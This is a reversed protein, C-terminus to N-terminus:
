KTLEEKAVKDVKGRVIWYTFASISMMFINIYTRRAEKSPNTAWEKNEGFFYSLGTQVFNDIGIYVFLIILLTLCMKDTKELRSLKNRKKKYVKM